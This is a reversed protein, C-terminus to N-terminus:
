GLVCSEHYSRRAVGTVFTAIWFPKKSEAYSQFKFKESIIEEFSEVKEM